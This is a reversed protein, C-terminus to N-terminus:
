LSLPVFHKRTLRYDVSSQWQGLQDQWSDNNVRLKQFGLKEYVRQARLNKVNTDLIIATYEMQFLTTILMKLCLTGLGKGQMGAKCVKIGIQATQEGNNHYSMEGIPVGRYEILLVDGADGPQSALQGRVKEETTGLGNPFGAHAMVGGDNWWRTLIPADQSGASRLTLTQYVIHM